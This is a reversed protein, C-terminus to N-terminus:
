SYMVRFRDAKSFASQINTKRHIHTKNNKNKHDRVMTQVLLLAEIMLKLIKESLFILRTLAKSSTLLLLLKFVYIIVIKKKYANFHQYYIVTRLSIKM